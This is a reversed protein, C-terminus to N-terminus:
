GEAHSAVVKGARGNLDLTGGHSHTPGVAALSTLLCDFIRDDLALNRYFSIVYLNRRM